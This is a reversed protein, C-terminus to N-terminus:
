EYLREIEQQYAKVVASRKVKLTPTLLGNEILFDQPSIFFKKVTEFSALGKNVDEIHRTILDFVGTDRHLESPPTAGQSRIWNEVEAANLTIIAVCYSKGEGVLVAQSVYRSKKLLSEIPDPAINKGGSTIILDKKRGTISLYGDNDISGLDGTHFRGEADWAKATATPRQWYGLSINPGRFLIEGDDAISVDIDDALVPGVTGIKKQGPKNAHTAVCTETLGYGELVEIHLADFFMCTAPSLKAGGSVAYRFNAGFLRAKVKECIPMLCGLAMGVHLPVPRNKRKAAVAKAAAALTWRLLKASLGPKEAAAELGEQMKELMRPVVPIVSAGSIRMDESVLALDPKSSKRNTVSPFQIVTPLLFGIYGMLKAFSHALPLMLFVSDADGVLEGQYAQRVNSLHNGHTQMVGKPPGTTGSTYVLAALDGRQVEKVVPPLSTSGESSVDDLYEILPHLIGCREFCIIKTLHIRATHAEREETAPITADADIIALLKAVQEENEAFVIQAGSDYLLYAIDSELLSQYISVSVGGAGLIALDAIMWEPRSNSLVAAKDNKKLGLAQLHNALRAIKDAVPAYRETKVEPAAGPAREVYSFVVDDPRARAVTFFFAPINQASDLDQFLTTMSRFKDRALPEQKPSDYQSPEYFGRCDMATEMVSKSFSELAGCVASFRRQNIAWGM